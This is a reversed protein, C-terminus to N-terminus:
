KNKKPPRAPRESVAPTGVIRGKRKGGQTNKTAM